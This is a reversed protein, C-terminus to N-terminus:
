ERTAPRQSQRGATPVEPSRCSVRSFYQPDIGLGERDLAGVDAPEGEPDDDGVPVDPAGVARAAVANTEVRVCQPWDAIWDLDTRLGAPQRNGAVREEDGVLVGPRDRPDIHM